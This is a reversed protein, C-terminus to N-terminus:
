YRRNTNTVMYPIQKVGMHIDYISRVVFLYVKIIHLVNMFM